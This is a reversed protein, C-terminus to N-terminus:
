SFPTEEIYVLRAYSLARSKEGKSKILKNKSNISLFPKNIKKSEAEEYILIRGFQKDDFKIPSHFLFYKHYNKRKESFIISYLETELAFRVLEQLSDIKLRMLKVEENSEPKSENSPSLTSINHQRYQSLSPPSSLPFVPIYGGIPDTTDNEFELRERPTAIYRIYEKPAREGRTFFVIRQGSKPLGLTLSLWTFYHYEEKENEVSYSLIPPPFSNSERSILTILRALSKLDELVFKRGDSTNAKM